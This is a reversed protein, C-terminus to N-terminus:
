SKQIRNEAQEKLFHNRKRLFRKMYAKLFFYDAVKGLVGFPSVWIFVDRMLTHGDEQEFHHEHMMSKFAGKLMEDEFYFPRNMRTIRVTLRQRLGLHRAEWTIIDGEECFGSTKGAVAREGTGATSKQHLDIDRALDFCSEASAYIITSLQLTPM